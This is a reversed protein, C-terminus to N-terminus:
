IKTIIMLYNLTSERKKYNKYFIENHIMFTLSKFSSKFFFKDIKKAEKLDGFHNIGAELIFM